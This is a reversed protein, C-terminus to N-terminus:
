GTLAYDGRGGGLFCFFATLNNFHTHGNQSLMCQSTSTNFTFIMLLITNRKMIEEEHNKEIPEYTQGKGCFAFVVAVNKDAVNGM